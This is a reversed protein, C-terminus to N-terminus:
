GREKVNQIKRIELLGAIEECKDRFAEQETIRELEDIQEGIKQNVAAAEPSSVPDAFRMKDYLADIAKRNEAGSVSVRCIELKKILGRFDATSEQEQTEIREIYRNGGFLSLQLFAFVVFIATQILYAWQQQGESFRICFRFFVFLQVVLYICSCYLLPLKLAAQRKDQRRYVSYAFVPQVALAIICFLYKMTKREKETGRLSERRKLNRMRRQVRREANWVSNKKRM